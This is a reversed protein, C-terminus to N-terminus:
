MKGHYCQRGGLTGKLGATFIASNSIAIMISM